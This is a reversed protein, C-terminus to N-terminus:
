SGNLEFNELQTLAILVIGGHTRCVEICSIAAERVAHNPDNLMQLIQDDLLFSTLELERKEHLTFYSGIFYLLEVSRLICDIVM